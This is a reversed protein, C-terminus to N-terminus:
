VLNEILRTPTSPPIAFLRNPESLRLGSERPDRNLHSHPGLPHLGSPISPLADHLSEDNHSDNKSLNTKHYPHERQTTPSPPHAKSSPLSHSYDRSLCLRHQPFAVSSSFYFRWDKIILFKLRRDCRFVVQNVLKPIPYLKFPTTGRSNIPLRPEIQDRQM